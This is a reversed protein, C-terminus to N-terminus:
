FEVKNTGLISLFLLKWQRGLILKAYVMGSLGPTITKQASRNIDPNLKDERGDFNQIPFNIIPCMVMARFDAFCGSLLKTSVSDTLKTEAHIALVLLAM